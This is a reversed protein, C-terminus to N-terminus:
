LFKKYQQVSKNGHRFKQLDQGILMTKSQMLEVLQQTDQVANLWRQSKGLLSNESVYTLLGQLIQERIDVLQLVEEVNIDDNTLIVKIQHDLDRLREFLEDM